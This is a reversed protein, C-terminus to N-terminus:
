MICESQIVQWIYIANQFPKLNRVSVFVDNKFKKKFIVPSYSHNMQCLGPSKWLRIEPSDVFLIPQFKRKTLIDLPSKNQRWQSIPIKGCTRNWGWVKSLFFEVFNFQFWHFIADGFANPHITFPQMWAAVRVAFMKPNGNQFVLLNAM